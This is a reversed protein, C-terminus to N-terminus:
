DQPRAVYVTPSFWDNQLFIHARRMECYHTKRSYTLAVEYFLQNPLVDLMVGTEDYEINM